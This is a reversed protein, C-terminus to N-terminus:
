IKEKFIGANKAQNKESIKLFTIKESKGENGRM